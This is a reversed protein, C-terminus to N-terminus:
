IRKLSGLHMSLFREHGLLLNGLDISRIRGAAEVFRRRHREWRGLFYGEHRGSRIAAEIEGPDGDRLQEITLDGEAVARAFVGSTFDRERVERRWTALLNGIRGMCQAHWIAERLKGLERDDFAPSCMLDLTAFSMMHMNHPLYLDHEAMNLLSLRRNLLHSYRLTNLFQLQDFRLLEAYNEHGPYRRTRRQYEEALSLTFEVYTRDEDAVGARLPPTGEGVVRLLSELLPGKGHEDAVDDLLVCLMISLVKSDCVDARLEPPVCPLTTMEVGCHAWKWLYLDRKGFAGYARVWSEIEGSLRRSEVRAQVEGAWDGCGAGDLGASAGPGEMRPPSVIASREFAHVDATLEHPLDDRLLRLHLITPQEIAKLAELVALLGDLEIGGVPGLYALGKEASVRDFWRPASARPPRASGRSNGNGDAHDNGGTVECERRDCCVILFRRLRSLATLLEASPGADPGSEDLVVVIWHSGGLVDRALALGLGQTLLEATDDPANEVSPLYAGGAPTPFRHEGDFRLERNTGSAAGKASTGLVRDHRPDFTGRVATVLEDTGILGAGTGEASSLWWLKEGIWDARREPRSYLAAERPGHPPQLSQFTDFLHAVTLQSM